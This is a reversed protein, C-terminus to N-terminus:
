TSTMHHNSVEKDHHNMHRDSFQLTTFGSEETEGLQFQGM